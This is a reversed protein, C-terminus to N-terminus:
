KSEKPTEGNQEDILEEKVVAKKNFGDLECEADVLTVKIEENTLRRLYESVQAEMMREHFALDHDKDNEIHEAAKASVKMEMEIYFLAKKVEINTKKRNKM